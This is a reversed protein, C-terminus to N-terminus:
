LRPLYDRAQYAAYGVAGGVLLGGGGGTATGVACGVGGGIAGGIPISLGLTFIAPIVGVVAGTFAGVTTGAVAGTSGMVVSGVLATGATVQVDARSAVEHLRFRIDVTQSEGETPEAAPVTRENKCSEVIKSQKERAEKVLGRYYEDMPHDWSSVGKAQNWYFIDGYDNKYASWDGM